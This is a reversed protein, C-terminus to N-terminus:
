PFGQGHCEEFKEQGHKCRSFVRPVKESEQYLNQCVFYFTFSETIM